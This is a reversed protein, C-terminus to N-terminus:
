ERNVSIVQGDIANIFLRTSVTEKEGGSIISVRYFVTDKERGLSCEIVTGPQRSNAIRVAQQMTIKAQKALEIQRKARSEREARANAEFEKIQAETLEERPEERRRAVSERERNQREVESREFDQHAKLDRERTEEEMRRKAADLEAQRTERLALERKGAASEPKNQNQRINAEAHITEAGPENKVVPPQVQSRRSNDQTQQKRNKEISSHIGVRLALPVAAVCPVALCILVAAFLLGRRRVDIGPKKLMSKVRQELIDADNIGVTMTTMARDDLLTSGALHVLSRAYIQPTLLKETVLEDCGLERTQNIQRRILAMAPHFALLAYIFEYALNFLYDRRVIHVLEHGIASTLVDADADHFLQEPLIVLPNINGVTVPMPVSASWLVRFHSVDLLRQCRGVVTEIRQHTGSSDVIDLLYADRKIAITRRWARFLRVGRYLVLLLYLTVITIAINTNVQIPRNEAAARAPIELSVPTYNAINDSRISGTASEPLVVPISAVTPRAPVRNFIADRIVDSCTLLPLLLTLFLASVWLIHRYRASSKRLLWACAAAVVTILAIQWGANILFTLLFRSVTEM